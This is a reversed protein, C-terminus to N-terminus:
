PTLRITLLGMISQGIKEFINGKPENIGAPALSEKAKAKGRVDTSTNVLKVNPVLTDHAHVGDALTHHHPYNYIPHVGSSSGYSIVCFGTPQTELPIAKKLLSIAEQQLNQIGRPSIMIATPDALNLTLKRIFDQLGNMTTTVSWQAPGTTQDTSSGVRSREIRGPCTASIFSLDGDIHAGGDIVMNSSAHLTGQVTVQGSGGPDPTLAISKGTMQLHDGELTVHGTNSGITIEPGIFKTIGGRIVVPGTSSIDIGQAGAFVSFKNSCKIQYHGGPTALPNTGVVATTKRYYPLAAKKEIKGGAPAINGDKVIKYSQSDNFGIGIELMDDGVVITHRNGGLPGLSAELELIEKSEIEAVKAAQQAQASQDTKDPLFGSGGCTPCGKEFLSRRSTIKPILPGILPIRAAFGAAGAYGEYTEEKQKYENEILLGNCAPCPITKGGGSSGGTSSSTKVQNSDNKQSQLQDRAATHAKSFADETKMGSRLAAEYNQKFVPSKSSFEQAKTKLSSRLEAVEAQTKNLENM